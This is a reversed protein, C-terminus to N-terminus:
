TDLDKLKRLWEMLPDFAAHDPNFKKAHLATGFELGPPEQWALWTRLQAKDRDVEAFRPERVENLVSDAYNWNPDNSNITRGLLTELKGQSQNDPMIWIGLARDSAARVVCGSPWPLPPPTEFGFEKSLSEIAAWKSDLKNDADIVVAITKIEPDNLVSELMKEAWLIGGEDERVPRVLFYDAPTARLERLQRSRVKEARRLEILAALVARDHKGECVLVVPM